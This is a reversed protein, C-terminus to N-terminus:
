PAAAQWKDNPMLLLHESGQAYTNQLTKKTQDVFDQPLDLIEPLEDYLTELTPICDDRYFDLLKKYDSRDFGDVDALMMRYNENIDRLKLILAGVQEYLFERQYDELDDIDLEDGQSAFSFYDNTAMGVISVSKRIPDHAAHALLEPLKQDGDAVRKFDELVTTTAHDRIIGLQEDSFHVQKLFRTLEAEYYPLGDDNKKIDNAEWIKRIIDLGNTLQSM